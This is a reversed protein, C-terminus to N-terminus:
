DDQYDTAFIRFFDCGSPWSKKKNVKEMKFTATFTSGDDNQRLVTWNM